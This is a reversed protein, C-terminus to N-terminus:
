ASRPLWATAHLRVSGGSTPSRATQTGNNRRSCGACALRGGCSAIRGRLATCGSDIRSRRGLRAGYM